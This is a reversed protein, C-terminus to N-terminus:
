RARYAWAGLAAAGVVFPVVALAGGGTAALLGAVLLGSAGVVQAVVDVAGARVREDLADDVDATTVFEEDLRREVRELDSEAAAARELAAMGSALEEVREDLDDLREDLAAVREAEAATRELETLQADLERVSERRAAADDLTEVTEAVADVREADATREDLAALEAALEAVREETATAAELTEVAERLRATEDRTAATAELDDVREALSALASAEAATEALRDVRDDLRALDAADAKAGDLDDVAARLHAVAEGDAKGRELDDVARELEALAEADATHAYLQDVESELAQIEEGLRDRKRDLRERLGELLDRTADSTRLNLERSLRKRDGEEVEGARLQEVLRGAVDDGVTSEGADGAPAEDAGDADFTEADPGFAEADLVAEVSAEGDADGSLARELPDVEDREWVAEEAAPTPDVGASDPDAGSALDPDTGAVDVGAANAAGGRDDGDAAADGGAVAADNPDADSPDGDAADGDGEALSPDVVEVPTVTVSPDNMFREVADPSRVGVGYVTRVSEGPALTREFVAAGDAVRWREREFEEHFGVREPPFGEPLPDRLTLEVVQERESEVRYVVTPASFNGVDFTKEVRLGDATVVVDDVDAAARRFGEAGAAGSHESM